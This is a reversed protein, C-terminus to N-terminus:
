GTSNRTHILLLIGLVILQSDNGNHRASLGDLVYGLADGQTFLPILAVGQLPLLM